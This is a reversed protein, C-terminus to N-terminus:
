CSTDACPADIVIYKGAPQNWACIIGSTGASPAGIKTGYNAVTFHTTASMVGSGFSPDQAGSDMVAVATTTLLDDPGVCGNGISVKILRAMPQISTIELGGRRANYRAQGIAGRWSSGATTAGYAFQPMGFPIYCTVQSGSLRAGAADLLYATVTNTAIPCDGAVLDGILEIYQVDDPDHPGADSVTSNDRTTM